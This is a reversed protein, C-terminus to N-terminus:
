KPEEKGDGGARIAAAIATCMEAEGLTRAWRPGDGAIQACAERTQEVAEQIAANVKEQLEDYHVEMNHYLEEWTENM